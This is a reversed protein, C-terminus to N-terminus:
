VITSKLENRELSELMAVAGAAVQILEKRYENLSKVKDIHGFHAELAAKNVEGVEEGLIACWEIPSHNQQGFKADQKEREFIIEHLIDITKLFLDM